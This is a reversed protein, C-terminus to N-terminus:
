RGRQNVQKRAEELASGKVILAMPFTERLGLIKAMTMSNRKVLIANRRAICTKTIEKINIGEM